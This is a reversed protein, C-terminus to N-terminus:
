HQQTCFPITFYMALTRQLTAPPILTNKLLLILNLIYVGACHTFKCLM